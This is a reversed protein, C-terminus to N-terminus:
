PVGNRDVAGFDRGFATGRPGRIKARRETSRPQRITAFSGNERASSARGGNSDGLSTRVRAIREWHDRKRLSLSKKLNASAWRRLYEGFRLHDVVHHIGGENRSHYTNPRTAITQKGSLGGKTSADGLGLPDVAELHGERYGGFPTTVAKPNAGAFQSSRGMPSNRTAESPWSAKRASLPKEETSHSRCHSSTWPASTAAVGCFLAQRAHGFSAHRHAAPLRCIM